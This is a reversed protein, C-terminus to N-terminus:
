EQNYWGGLAPDRLDGLDDLGDYRWEGTELYRRHIELIRENEEAIKVNGETVNKLAEQRIRENLERQVDFPNRVKDKYPSNPFEGLAEDFYDFRKTLDTPAEKEIKGMFEMIEARIKAIKKTAKTEKATKGLADGVWPVMSLLSLGAGILDGDSLSMTAGVADSIPTPDFVGAIDVAAKEIEWAMEAELRRLEEEPDVPIEQEPNEGTM